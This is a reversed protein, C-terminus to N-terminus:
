AAMDSQTLNKLEKLKEEEANIRKSIDANKGKISIYQKLLKRDM